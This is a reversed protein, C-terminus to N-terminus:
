EEFQSNYLSAYAGNKALLEDHTGQEIIDGDKMVLILDANKITSLRHAIVFSTRGKTLKDMAEQIIKEMRTDVSSTAEDLILMPSNQVMARAITLLQKQGASISTNDDLITDYGHPLTKIFHHVGCARCADEVQEDTVGQKSYIINDKVSAEYLWTDQLVMSFLDHVNERTIDKTSVGDILIDGSDVEYFRMLLNVMTTKGAGTPGVIAVKQGAKVKASFDGIITKDKSYGFRVNKFEINGKVNELKFTKSSEDSIEEESLLEFVRESAAGASQLSTLSQAINSLPQSFLRIYVMFAVIVGFSISGKTVLLAGVICVIFYGLNGVFGMLPGMLGSLFQSKWGSTFLKKNVTDFKEKMDDKADYITVIDHGSYVEEIHGNMDGLSKQQMEFYKQSKALVIAMVSFGVLTAVIASIAMIWNTVFMMIVCGILLTVSSVLSSVSQNLTQAITDVDNTVRSLVNGYTTSDMYKLPVRNIKRSIDSRLRKSTRQTVSNMIYGQIYSFIGSLLYLIILLLGIKVIEKTAVSGKQSVFLTLKGDKLTMGLSGILEEGDTELTQKSFSIAPIEVFEGNNEVKTPVFNDNEDLIGFKVLYANTTDDFSLKIAIDQSSVDLVVDGAGTNLTELEEQTVDINAFVGKQIIDTMESLKNPGILSLVTGAIALIFAIVIMAIYPKCYAVLDRMAKKFNKAKGFDANKTHKPM